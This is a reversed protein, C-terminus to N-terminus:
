RPLPTKPDRLLPSLAETGAGVGRGPLRDEGAPAQTIEKAKRFGPKRQPSMVHPARPGWGAGASSGPTLFLPLRVMGTGGLWSGSGSWAGMGAGM